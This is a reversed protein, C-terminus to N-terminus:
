LQIESGAVDMHNYLQILSRRIRGSHGKTTVEMRDFLTRTRELGLSGPEVESFPKM